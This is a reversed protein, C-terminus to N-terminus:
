KRSLSQTVLSVSQPRAPSFGTSMWTVDPPAKAQPMCAEPARRDGSPLASAHASVAADPDHATAPPRTADQAERRERVAGCAIRSEVDAPRRVSTAGSTTPRPLSRSTHAPRYSSRPNSGSANPAWPVPRRGDREPEIIPSYDERHARGLFLRHWRSDRPLNARRYRRARGRCGHTRDRSMRGRRRRGRVPPPM